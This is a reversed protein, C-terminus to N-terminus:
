TLLSADSFTKLFPFCSSENQLFFLPKVKGIYLPLILFILGSFFEMCGMAISQEEPRLYEIVLGPHQVFLSGQLMGYLVISLIMTWKSFTLPISVSTGSQLIMGIFM